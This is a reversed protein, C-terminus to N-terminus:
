ISSHADVLKEFEALVAMSDKRTMKSEHLLINKLTRKHNVLNYIKVADNIYRNRAVHLKATMKETDRFIHDDLKLSLTKM